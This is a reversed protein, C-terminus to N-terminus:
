QHSHRWDWYEKKDADSRKNLDLHDRHTDHERQSYYVVEGSVPHYDHHYSDYYSAHVACGAVGAMMSALSAALLLPAFDKLMPRM